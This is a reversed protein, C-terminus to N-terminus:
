GGNRLLRRIPASRCGVESQRWDKCCLGSAFAEVGHQAACPFLDHTAFLRFSEDREMACLWQASDDWDILALALCRTGGYPHPEVPDTPFGPLTWFRWGLPPCPDIDVDVIWRDIRALIRTM